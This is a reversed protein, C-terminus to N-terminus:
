TSAGTFNRGVTADVRKLSVGLYRQNQMVQFIEYIEWGQLAIEM